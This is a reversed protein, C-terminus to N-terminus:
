IGPLSVAGECCGHDSAADGPPRARKTRSNGYLCQKTVSCLTSFGFAITLPPTLAGARNVSRRTRKMLAASCLTIGSIHGSLTTMSDPSGSGAAPHGASPTSACSPLPSSDPWSPVSRLHLAIQAHFHNPMLVWEDLEVGPRIRPTSLWEERVVEGPRSLCVRGAEISSFLCARSWACITVYYWWPRSCDWEPLRDSRRHQPPEHSGM